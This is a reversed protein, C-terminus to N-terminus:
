VEHPSVSGKVMKDSVRTGDIFILCNGRNREEAIVRLCVERISVIDPKEYITRQGRNMLYSFGIGELFRYLTTISM